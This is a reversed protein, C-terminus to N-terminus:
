SSSPPAKLMLSLLIAIVAAVAAAAYSASFDGTIDALFGAGIPGLSQGVAFVLTVAALGSAAGTAGFYDGSAAAMITPISWAALGFLVISPYLGLFGFDRAVLLFALALVFFAVALGMRRGLRDSLGGFLAGSFMSLFGVWAWLGGADAESLKYSDIMSTVIFSAYIMYTGGYIAYVIGLHAVLLARHHPPRMKVNDSINEPRRGYPEQGIESPHNRIVLYAILATAGSIVAFLLWGTQWGLLGKFPVLKPVIFGSVIIGLGAGSLLLGAARGRHSPYFWQSALSMVPVFAGGSGVGTLGYLLCLTQFNETWAIGLMSLAILLLSGTILKRQGLKPALFPIMAVMILYGILYSSGLLGRQGYDLALAESMSPLLMGFAFRALGLCCFTALSGAMAVFWAYHLPRQVM